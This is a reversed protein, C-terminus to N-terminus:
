CDQLRCTFRSSARYIPHNAPDRRILPRLGAFRGLVDAESLSPCFYHNFGDLLYAVDDPTVDLGDPSDDCATDTTGLLTKGLWPIVFFVRGDAPHLLLFAASLGRDAAILHVGKTPRLLPGSDDGALRRVADSWPGTANLVQKTAISFERGSRHDVARVGGPHDFAIAEVYNVVIAGQLAATRMVELCLRADDMQADCYEAGGRLGKTQLGPFERCLRLPSTAQSRRINHLVPWSTM